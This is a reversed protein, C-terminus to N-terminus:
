SSGKHDVRRTFREQATTSVNRLSYHECKEQTYTTVRIVSLNPLGNKDLPDLEVLTFNNKLTEAWGWNNFTPLGSFTPMKIRVENCRTNKNTRKKRM